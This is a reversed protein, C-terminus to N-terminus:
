AQPMDKVIRTGIVRQIKAISDAGLEVTSLPAYTGGHVFGVPTGVPVGTYGGNAKPEEKYRTDFRAYRSKHTVAYTILVLIHFGAAALHSSGTEEDIDEGEWWATLHRQLADYSKDWEYGKRWNHSSYKAAGKGFHEAIVGLALWPLLSFKEPKTGKEGGTESISRIEESM